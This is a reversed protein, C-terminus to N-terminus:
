IRNGGKPHGRKMSELAGFVLLAGWPAPRWCVISAPLTYTNGEMMDYSHETIIPRIIIERPDKM